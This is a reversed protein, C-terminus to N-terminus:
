WWQTMLIFQPKDNIREPFVKCWEDMCSEWLCKSSISLPNQIVCIDRTSEVTVGFVGTSPRYYSYLDHYFERELENDDCYKFYKKSEDHDIIFGYVIKADVNVSM